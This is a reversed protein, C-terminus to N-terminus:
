RLGCSPASPARGVGAGVAQHWVVNGGADRAVVQAEPVEPLDDALYVNDIVPATVVVHCDDRGLLQVSAVGDAAVGVLTVVSMTPPVGLYRSMNFIPRTPSPFEADGALNKCDGGRLNSLNDSQAPPSVYYCVDGTTRAEYFTWGERSALRVVSGPTDGTLSRVDDVIWQVDQTPQTGQNSFGFLSDLAGSFALAPIALALALVASAVLRRRPLRPARLPSGERNAVIRAFTSEREPSEALQLLQTASVPDLRGFLEIPDLTETTM